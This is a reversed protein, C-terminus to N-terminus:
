GALIIPLTPKADRQFQTITHLEALVQLRLLSAEDIILGAKKQPGSRNGPGTKQHVKPSSPEPSAPLTWQSSAASKGTSNWSPTRQSPSGLPRISPHTGGVPPGTCPPPKGAAWM